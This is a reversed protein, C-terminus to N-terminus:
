RLLLGQVWGVKLVLKNNSLDIDSLLLETINSFKKNIESDYKLWYYVSRNWNKYQEISGIESKIM